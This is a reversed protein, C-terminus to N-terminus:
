IPETDEADSGSEGAAPVDTSTRARQAQSVNASIIAALESSSFYKGLYEQTTKIAVDTQESLLAEHHRLFFYSLIAGILHSQILPPLGREKARARLVRVTKGLMEWFVDDMVVDLQRRTKLVGGRIWITPTPLEGAAM